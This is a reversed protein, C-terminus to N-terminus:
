GMKAQLSILAQQNVKILGKQPRNLDVVLVLLASFALALPLVAILRRRGTLGIQTGMTIMTLVCISLVAIWITTPIRNHLGTMVRNEHKAIVENIAGVMLSTNFSPKALAAASVQQWLQKHIVLSRAIAPAIENTKAAQLRINVYEELLRKVENGYASDLLDARLYATGVTNAEDLVSQKRASHHSAALSFTFALVFALMGLLGAVMPGISSPADSDHESKNRNGIRYGVECSTLM